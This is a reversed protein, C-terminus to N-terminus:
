WKLGNNGAKYGDKGKCCGSGIHSNGGGFSSVIDWGYKKCGEAYEDCREDCAQKRGAEM